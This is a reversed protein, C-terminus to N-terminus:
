IQKRAYYGQKTLIIVGGERKEIEPSVKVKIKRFKGDMQPNSSTYGFSYRNRLMEVLRALQEEAKGKRGDLVFGGTKDAYFMVNKGPNIVLKFPKSAPNYKDILKPYFSLNTKLGYVTAGAEYLQDIVQKDSYRTRRGGPDNGTIVIIARRGIPNASKHFQGAAQYISDAILGGVRGDEVIAPRASVVKKGLLADEVSQHDTTFDVWHRVVLVDFHMLSVEDDPKLGHLFLTGSKELDATVDFVNCSYDILLMISLPLKDKSFYTIEQKIGDEFLEFDKSGLDGVNKGTKSSIVQADFAVLDTDLKIRIESNTNKQQQSLSITTFCSVLLLAACVLQKKNIYTTM